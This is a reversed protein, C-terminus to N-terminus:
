FFMNNDVPLGKESLLKLKKIYQPPDDLTPSSGEQIQNYTVVCRLTEAQACVYCCEKDGKALQEKASDFKLSFAGKSTKRSDAAEILKMNTVSQMDEETLKALCGAHTKRGQVLSKQSIFYIFVFRQQLQAAKNKSVFNTMKESLRESAEHVYKNGELELLDHCMADDYTWEHIIPAIQDISRDVILLYNVLKQQQSSPFPLKILQSTSGFQKKPILDRSNKSEADGEKSAKKYRVFPFEQFKFRSLKPLFIIIVFSMLVIM